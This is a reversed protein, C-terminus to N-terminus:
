FFITNSLSGSDFAKQGKKFVDEIIKKKSAKDNNAYGPYATKTTNGIIGIM